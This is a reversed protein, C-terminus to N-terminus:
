RRKLEAHAFDMLRLRLTEQDDSRLFQEAFEYMQRLFSRVDAAQPPEREAAERRARRTELMQLNACKRCQTLTGDRLLAGRAVHAKGCECICHYSMHPTARTGARSSVTLRGFVRGVMEDM